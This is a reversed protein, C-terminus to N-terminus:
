AKFYFLANKYIIKYENSMAIYLPMYIAHWLLDM